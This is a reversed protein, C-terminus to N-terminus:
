IGISPLSKLIDDVNKKTQARFHADERLADPTVGQFTYELQQRIKEKEPNNDLNFDDLMDVISTVNSVLTDRFISKKEDDGFDITRSMKTLAEHIRTWVDNMSKTIMGNYSAECDDRVQKLAEAPLDVRIDGADPCPFTYVNWAFKLKLEDLTPYDSKNFLDGLKIKAQEVQNPYEIFFKECLNFFENQMNSMTKTYEFYRKTPILRQGGDSWPTTMNVHLNRANGVHKGIAQFINSDGLLAKHVNAVGSKANNTNVVEQSARKDLKRLTAQSIRLDVLLASSALTPATNTEFNM